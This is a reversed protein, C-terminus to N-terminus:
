VSLSRGYLSALAGGARGPFSAAPWRELGIDQTVRDFSLCDPCQRIRRAHDLWDAARRDKKVVFELVFLIVSLSIVVILPIVVVLAIIFISTFVFFFTIFVILYLEQYITVIGGQPTLSEKFEMAFFGFGQIIGWTLALVLVARLAAVVLNRSNITWKLCAISYWAAMVVPILVILTGLTIPGRNHYIIWGAFCVSLAAIALAFGRSIRRLFGLLSRRRLDDLFNWLRVVQHNIVQKQADSLLLNLGHIRVTILVPWLFYANVLGLIDQWRAM